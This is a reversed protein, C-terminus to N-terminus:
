AVHCYPPYGRSEVMIIHCRASAGATVVACTGRAFRAVVENRGKLAVIAVHASVPQRVYELVRCQQEFREVVPVVESARITMLGIGLKNGPVCRRVLGVAGATVCGIVFSAWMLFYLAWISLVTNRFQPITAARTM